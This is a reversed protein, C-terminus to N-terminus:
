LGASYSSPIFCPMYKHKQQMQFKYDEENFIQMVLCIQNKIDQQTRINNRKKIVYWKLQEDM